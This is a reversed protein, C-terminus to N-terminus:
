FNSIHQCSFLCAGVPWRTWWHCSAAHSRV